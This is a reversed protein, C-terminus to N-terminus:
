DCRKNGAEALWNNHFDLYCNNCGKMQRCTNQWYTKSHDKENHLHLYRSLFAQLKRLRNGPQETGDPSCLSAQPAIKKVAHLIFLEETQKFFPIASLVKFLMHFRLKELHQAPRHVKKFLGAFYNRVLTKMPRSYPFDFDAM